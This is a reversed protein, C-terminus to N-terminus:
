SALALVACYGAYALVRNVSDEARQGLGLSYTIARAGFGMAAIAHFARRSWPRHKRYYRDLSDLWLTEDALLGPQGSGSGQRHQVALDTRLVLRYGSETLRRGLDLDEGYLFFSEDFGGVRRFSERRVMLCAGCLWELPVETRSAALQLPPPLHAPARVFIARRGIDWPLWSSLLLHESLVSSWCPLYGGMGVQPRGDPLILLPSAAAIRSDSFSGLLASLTGTALTVDPNLFLVYKAAGREAGLNAARAFGVNRPSVMVHAYRSVRAPVPEPSANDVVVVSAVPEDDQRLAAVCQRLDPASSYHVIVVDVM